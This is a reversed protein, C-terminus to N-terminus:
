FTPSLLRGLKPIIVFRISALLDGFWAIFRLRPHGTKKFHFISERSETIAPTISGSPDTDWCFRHHRLAQMSPARHSLWDLQCRGVCQEHCRSAAQMRTPWIDIRGRDPNRDTKNRRSKTGAFRCRGRYLRPRWPVPMMRTCCGGLAISGWPM